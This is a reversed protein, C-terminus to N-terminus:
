RRPEGSTNPKSLSELKETVGADICLRVIHALGKAGNLTTLATLKIERLADRMRKNEELANVVKPLIRFADAHALPGNYFEAHLEMLLDCANEPLASGIAPPLAAEPQKSETNM